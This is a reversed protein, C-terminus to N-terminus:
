KRKKRNPKRQQAVLKDYIKGTKTNFLWMESVNVYIYHSNTTKDVPVDITPTFYNTFKRVYPSAIQFVILLDINAKSQKASAIDMKTNFLNQTEGMLGFESFKFEFQRGNLMILNYANCEIESVEREVGYANNAVYSDKAKKEEPGYIVLQDKKSNYDGGMGLPIDGTYLVAQMMQTDANYKLGTIKGPLSLDVVVAMTSRPTLQGKIPRTLAQTIRKDYAQSTEFEGKASLRRSLTEYLEIINHGQFNVPLKSVSTDFPFSNQKIDHQPTFASAGQPTESALPTPRTQSSVPYEPTAGFNVANQQPFAQLSCLLILLVSFVLAKKM